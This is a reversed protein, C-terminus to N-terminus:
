MLSFFLAWTLRIVVVGMWSRAFTVSCVLGTARDIWGCETERQLWFGEGSVM